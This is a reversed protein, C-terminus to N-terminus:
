CFAPLFCISFTQRVCLDVRHTILRTAKFCQTSSLHLNSFLLPSLTSHCHCRQSTLRYKCLRYHLVICQLNSILNSHFLLRFKRYLPSSIQYCMVDFARKSIHQAHISSIRLQKNINENRGVFCTMYDDSPTIFHSFHFSSVILM